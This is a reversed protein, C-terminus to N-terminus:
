ISYQNPIVWVYINKSLSFKAPEDLISGVQGNM